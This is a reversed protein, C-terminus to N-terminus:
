VPRPRGPVGVSCELAARDWGGNTAAAEYTSVLFEMLAADPNDATRVAEYPLLYERLEASYFAASPRV